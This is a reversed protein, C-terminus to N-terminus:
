AYDQETPSYLSMWVTPVSEPQRLQLSSKSGVSTQELNMETRSPLEEPCQGQLVLNPTSEVFAGKIIFNTRLYLITPSTSRTLNMLQSQLSHTSYM